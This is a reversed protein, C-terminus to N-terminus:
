LRRRLVFFREGPVPLDVAGHEVRATGVVSAGTAPDVTTLDYTGEALPLAALKAGPEAVLILRDSEAVGKAGEGKWPRPTIWNAWDSISLVARLAKIRGGDGERVLFPGPRDEFLSPWPTATSTMARKWPDDLSATAEWQALYPSAGFRAVAYRRWAASGDEPLALTTYLGNRAVADMTAGFAEMADPSLPDAPPALRVWTAGAAALADVRAPTANGGLDAGVGVWPRDGELVLRDPRDGARVIGLGDKLRAEVIGEVPEVLADKGNRVLTARYRGGHTTYLTAEWAGLVPDFTAVREERENREGLFRVRVDNRRADYPDGAFQVPFTVTAPGYWAPPDAWALRNAVLLALMKPFM